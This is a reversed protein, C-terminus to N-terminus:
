RRRLAESIMDQTQRYLGPHDLIDGHAPVIITPPRQTLEASLWSLVAIRDKITQKMALNFIRYGPGSGTLRFLLRVPLPAKIREFNVLLDSAFWAWGRRMRIAAVSEGCRTFPAEILQIRGRLRGTLREFPLIAGLTPSRERLRVIAAGPAHVTAYPFRATWEALGLHHMGNNAVIAGVHGLRQLTEFAAETMNCAPSIVLLNDDAMRAVLCNATAEGDFRYERIWVGAEADIITWGGNIPTVIRQGTRRSPTADIFGRLRPTGAAM